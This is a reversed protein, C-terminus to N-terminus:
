PSDGAFADFEFMFITAKFAGFSLCLYRIFLSDRLVAEYPGQTNYM